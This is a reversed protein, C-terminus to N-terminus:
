GQSNMRPSMWESPQRMVFQVVAEDGTLALAVLVGPIEEGVLGVVDPLEKGVGEVPHADLPRRQRAGAVREVDGDGAFGGDSEHVGM